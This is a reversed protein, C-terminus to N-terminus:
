IVGGRLLKNGEERMVRDGEKEKSGKLLNKEGVANKIRGRPKTGSRVM